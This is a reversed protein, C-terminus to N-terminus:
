RGFQIWGCGDGRCLNEMGMRGWLVQSGDGDTVSVCNGDGDTGAFNVATDTIQSM